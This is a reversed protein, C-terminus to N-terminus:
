LVNHIVAFLYLSALFYSSDVGMVMLKKGSYLGNILTAPLMFGVWLFTSLGLLSQVSPPTLFSTLFTYVCSTVVWLVFTLIFIHPGPKFGNLSEAREETAKKGMLVPNYWVVGLIFAVIACIATKLIPFEPPFQNFIEFIVM